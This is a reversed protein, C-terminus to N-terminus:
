KAIARPDSMIEQFARLVVVRVQCNRQSGVYNGPIGADSEPKDDHDYALVVSVERDCEPREHNGPLGAFGRCKSPLQAPIQCLKKSPGCFWWM